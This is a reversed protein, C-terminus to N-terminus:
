REDGGSKTKNNPDINYVVLMVLSTIVIWVTIWGLPFPLGFILPYVKNHLVVGLLMAVCPFITIWHILRM